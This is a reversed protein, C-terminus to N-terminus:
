FSVSDLQGEAQGKPLPVATERLHTGNWVMALPVDVTPPQSSNMQSGVAVCYSSSVCSVGSLAPQLTSPSSDGAVAEVPAAACGLVAGLAAVLAVQAIVIRRVAAETM